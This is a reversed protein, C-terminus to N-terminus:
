SLKEGGDVKMRVQSETSSDTLKMYESLAALNPRRPVYYYKYVLPAKLSRSISQFGADLYFGGCRMRFWANGFRRISIAIYSHQQHNRSQISQLWPSVTDDENSRSGGEIYCGLYVIQELNGPPMPDHNNPKTRDAIRLELGKNTWAWPLRQEPALELKQINSATAFDRASEALLGHLQRDARWAFMSEDDSNRLIELQFRFFADKGEGYLLPMNVEFLGLLCYAQDEIRTTKRRSAWSMRIAVSADFISKDKTLYEM